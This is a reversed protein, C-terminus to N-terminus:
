KRDTVSWESRLIGMHLLDEYKGNRFVHERSCGEEVFGCKKYAAQARLNNGLVSLSVKHMNLSDFAYGVLLRIARSGYGKSWHGKDGIMIGLTAVRDRWNINHLGTSGIPTSEVVIILVIDSDKRKSLGAVWEKEEEHSAPLYLNLFKTVESDNAWQTLYPVYVESVPSLVLDGDKLFVVQKEKM